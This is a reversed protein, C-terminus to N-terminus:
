WYVIFDQVISGSAYNEDSQLCETWYDKGKELKVELDEQPEFYIIGQDTTNFAICAHSVGKRFLIFVYACRIGQEEANNNVDRSFHACNYTVDNFVNENTKDLEIFNITEEYTPDHLNSKNGKKLYEIDQILLQLTNNKTQYNNELSRLENNKTTFKNEVSIFNVISYIFFISIIALIAILLKLRKQKTM